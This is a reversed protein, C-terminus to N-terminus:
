PIAAEGTRAASRTIMSQSWRLPDKMTAASRLVPLTRHLFSRGDAGSPHAVGLPNRGAPCAAPHGAWCCPAPRSEDRRTGSWGSYTQMGGAAPTATPRIAKMMKKAVLNEVEKPTTAFTFMAVLPRGAADYPYVQSIARGEAYLGSGATEAAPDVGATSGAVADDGFWSEAKTATFLNDVILPLLLVALRM